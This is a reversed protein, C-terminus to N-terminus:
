LRFNVIRAQIMCNSRCLFFLFFIILIMTPVVFLLDTSHSLLVFVIFDGPIADDNHCSFLIYVCYLCVFYKLLVYTLCIPSMKSHNFQTFSYINKTYILTWQHERQISYYWLGFEQSPLIKEYNYTYKIFFMLRDKNTHTYNKYVISYKNQNNYYYVYIHMILYQILTVQTFVIEIIGNWQSLLFVFLLFIYM